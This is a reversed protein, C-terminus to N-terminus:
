APVSAGELIFLVFFFQAQDAVLPGVQDRGAVRHLAEVGCDLGADVRDLEVHDPQRVRVQRELLPAGQDDGMVPLVRRAPRRQLQGLREVGEELRREVPDLDVEVQLQGAPLLLQDVSEALAVQDLPRHDRRHLHM